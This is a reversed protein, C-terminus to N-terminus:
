YGNSKSICFKACMSVLIFLFFWYVVYLFRFFKVIFWANERCKIISRLPSMSVLGPGMGLMRCVCGVVCLFRHLFYKISHM